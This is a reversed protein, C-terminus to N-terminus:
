SKTLDVKECFVLTYIRHPETHFWWSTHVLKTKYLLRRFDNSTRRILGPWGTIWRTVWSWPSPAIQAGIFLGKEDLLHYAMDCSSIFSKEGRYDLFGSMEVIDFTKQYESRSSFDSIKECYTILLEGIGWKEAYDRAMQLSNPNIDVLVLKLSSRAEPHEKLFFYVAMITADASGSALSVIWLKKKEQLWCKELHQYTKDLVELVRNRVAQAEPQSFWFWGFWKRLGRETSLVLLSSYIAALATWSTVGNRTRELLWHARDFLFLNKKPGLVKRAPDTPRIIWIYSIYKIISWGALCLLIPMALWFLWRLRYEREGTLGKKKTWSFREDLVIERLCEDAKTAKSMSEFIGEFSKKGGNVIEELNSVLM